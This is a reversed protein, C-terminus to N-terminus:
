PAPKTVRGRLINKRIKGTATKPLEGLIVKKPVKFSAMGAKCHDILDQETVAAGDDKLCVFACPVEGWKDDAIAVVATEFVNPHRYLVEEIEQSSINEGGSIIIDKARDKIQVYGDPHVVALDGTHFWGGQFVQETGAENKLYGKMLTNGKLLLEGMSQGDPPVMGGDALSAVQVDDIAFSGVGQRAMKQALEEASLDKWDDQWVCLM